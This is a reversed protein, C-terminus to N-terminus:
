FNGITSSIKGGFLATWPEEGHDVDGRGVNGISQAIDFRMETAVHRICYHPTHDIGRDVNRYVAIHPERENVRVSHDM